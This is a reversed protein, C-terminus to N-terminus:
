VAVAFKEVKIIQHAGNDADDIDMFELSQFGYRKIKESVRATPNGNEDKMYSHVPYWCNNNLHKAVGLPITYVSGDVMTYQEIPDGLYKRFSFGMSGGPVEYDKFVGKVLERDRDRQAMLEKSLVKKVSMIEGKKYLPVM